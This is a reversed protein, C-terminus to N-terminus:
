RCCVTANIASPAMRKTSRRMKGCNSLVAMTAPANGKAAFASTIASSPAIAHM